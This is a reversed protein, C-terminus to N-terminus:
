RIVTCRKLDGSAKRLTDLGKTSSVVDLRIAPQKHLISMAGLLVSVEESQMHNNLDDERKWKEILRYRNEDAVDKLVDCAICGKEMRIRETIALLTQLLEKTKHPPVDMEITIVIV